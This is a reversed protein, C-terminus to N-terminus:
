WSAIITPGVTETPSSHESGAHTMHAGYWLVVDAKNISEGTVWKQLQAKTQSEGVPYEVTDYIETGSWKLAWVDGDAYGGQNFDPSPNSSRTSQDYRGPKLLVKYGGTGAIRYYYKSYNADYLQRYDKIEKGGGLLSWTSGNNTTKSVVNDLAGNVDFDLRWYAHHTHSNCTCDNQVAAFGFEPKLMGNSYFSWKTLYRYHGSRLVSVVSLIGSHEWIWVGSFNGGDKNDDWLTTPATTGRVIGDGTVSARFAQEGGV